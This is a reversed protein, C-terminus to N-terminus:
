ADKKAEEEVPALEVDECAVVGREVDSGEALADAATSLSSGAAGGTAAAKAAAAPADAGVKSLYPPKSLYDRYSQASNVSLPYLTGRKLHASFDVPRHQRFFACIGTTFFVAIYATLHLSYSTSQLIATSSFGM